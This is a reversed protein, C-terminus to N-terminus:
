DNFPNENLFESVDDSNGNESSEVKESVYEVFEDYSKFGAIDELDYKDKVLKKDDSSLAQAGGDPDAPEIFYKTNLKLGERTIEFDRSSIGKFAVDKKGLTEFVQIGCEWVAVRDETGVVKDWNIKGDAGEEFIPADRWILNILGQFKRPFEGECGPCPVGEDDQDLCPIRNYFEGIQHYWYSYVEEGQELFRVVASDGSNPLKFRRYSPSNSRYVKESAAKVAGFGRAM